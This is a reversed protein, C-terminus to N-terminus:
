IEKTNLYIAMGYKADDWGICGDSSNDITIQEGCKIGFYVQLHNTTNSYFSSM